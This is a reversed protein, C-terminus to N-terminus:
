NSPTIRSRFTEARRELFGVMGQAVSDITQDKKIHLTYGVIIGSVFTVVFRM